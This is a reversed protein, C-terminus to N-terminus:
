SPALPDRGALLYYNSRPGDVDITCQQTTATAPGVYGHLVTSNDLIVLNGPALPVTLCFDLKNVLESFRQRAAHYRTTLTRSMLPLADHFPSYLIGNVAGSRDLSILPRTLRHDRHTDAYRFNIDTTCLLQFAKPDERRLRDTVALGDILVLRGLPAAGALCHTVLYGPTPSRFPHASQPETSGGFAPGSFVRGLHTERVAGFAQAVELMLGTDTSAKTLIVIGLRLLDAIADGLGAPSSLHDVRHYPLPALDNRWAVRGPLVNLATIDQRLVDLNFEAVHGDSFRVSLVNDTQVAVDVRLDQPLSHSNLLRTGTAPDFQSPEPSRERLWLAPLEHAVSGVQLLLKVGIGGISVKM